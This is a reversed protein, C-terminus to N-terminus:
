YNPINLEGNQSKTITIDIIKDKVATIISQAQSKDMQSIWPFREKVEIAVTKAEAYFAKEKLSDSINLIEGSLISPLKNLIGNINEDRDWSRSYFQWLYRQQFFKYLELVKEEM